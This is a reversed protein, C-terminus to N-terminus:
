CSQTRASRSVPISPRPWWHCSLRASLGDFQRTTMKCTYGGNAVPTPISTPAGGSKAPHLRAIVVDLHHPQCLQAGWGTRSYITRCLLPGPVVKPRSATRGPGYALNISCKTGLERAGLRTPTGGRRTRPRVESYRAM